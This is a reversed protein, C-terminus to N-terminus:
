KVNPIRNGQVEEELMSIADSYGDWNDVGCSRLAQLFNSDKELNIAALKISHALAQTGALKAEVETEEFGVKVGENTLVEWRFGSELVVEEGDADEDYLTIPILKIKQKFLETINM